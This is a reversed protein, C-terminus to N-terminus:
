EQKNVLATLALMVLATIALGEILMMLLSCVSLLMIFEDIGLGFSPRSLGDLFLRFSSKISAMIGTEEEDITEPDKEENNSTMIGVETPDEDVNETPDKSMNTQVDNRMIMSVTKLPIKRPLQIKLKLTKMM